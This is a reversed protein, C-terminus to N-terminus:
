LGKYQTYAELAGDIGDTIQNNTMPIIEKNVTLETKGSNNVLGMYIPKYSEYNVVDGNTMVINFNLTEDDAIEVNVEKPIIKIVFENKLVETTQIIYNEEEM